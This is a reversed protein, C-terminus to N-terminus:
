GLEKEIMLALEQALREITGHDQGEVMVRAV